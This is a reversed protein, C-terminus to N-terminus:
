KLKSISFNISKICTHNYLIERQKRFFQILECLNCLIARLKRFSNRRQSFTKPAAWVSLYSIQVCIQTIHIYYTSSSFIFIKQSMSQLTKNYKYKVTQLFRNKMVTALRWLYVVCRDKCISLHHLILCQQKQPLKSWRLRLSFSLFLFLPWNFDGIFM